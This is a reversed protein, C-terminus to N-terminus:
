QKIGRGLLLQRPERGFRRVGQEDCGRCSGALLRHRVSQAGFQEAKSLFSQIVGTFPQPYFGLAIIRETDVYDAGGDM